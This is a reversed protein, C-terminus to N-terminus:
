CAAPQLALCTGRTSSIAYIFLSPTASPIPQFFLQASLVYSSVSQLTLPLSMKSTSIQSRDSDFTFFSIQSVHFVRLISSLTHICSSCLLLFWVHFAIRSICIFFSICYFFLWAPSNLCSFSFCDKCYFSDTWCRLYLSSCSRSSSMELFLSLTM